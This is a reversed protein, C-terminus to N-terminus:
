LGLTNPGLLSNSEALATRLLTTGASLSYSPSSGGAARTTTRLLPLQNGGGQSNSYVSLLGPAAYRILPLAALAISGPQAGPTGTLDDEEKRNSFSVTIM